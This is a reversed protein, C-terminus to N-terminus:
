PRPALTGLRFGEAGSAEAPPPTAEGALGRVRLWGRAAVRGGDAPLAEVLRGLAAADAGRKHADAIAFVADSPDTRVERAVRALLDLEEVSYRRMLEMAYGPGPPPRGAPADPDAIRGSAVPTGALRMAGPAPRWPRSPTAESGRETTLATAAGAPARAPAAAASRGAPAAPAAGRSTPPADSTALLVAVVGLVALGTVVAAARSGRGRM